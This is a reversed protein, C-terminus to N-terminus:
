QFLYIVENIYIYLFWKKIYKKWFNTGNKNLNYSNLLLVNSIKFYPLNKVM